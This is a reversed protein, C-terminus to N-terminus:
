HQYGSYAQSQAAQRDEWGGSGGSSSWGGPSGGSSWGGGGGGGSSWGGGGGSSWGGSNYATASSHHDHGQSMLAKFGIFASIAISILSAIIAKKALLAIGFYALTALAGIKLKAALLLPLISKLIKKKGRGEVVEDVAQRVEEPVSDTLARASNSVEEIMPSFNIQLSRGSVFGSIKDTVFNELSNQREAVTSKTVEIEQDYVVDEGTKAGRSDQSKVLSVGRVIEFKDQGFFEKARRYLSKQVCSISDQQLCDDLTQASAVAAVLLVALLKM